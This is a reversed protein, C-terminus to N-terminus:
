WCSLNAWLFTYVSTHRFEPQPFNERCCYKDASKTSFHTHQTVLVFCSSLSKSSSLVSLNYEFRVDNFVVTISWSWNRSCTIHTECLKCSIVDHVISFFVNFSNICLWFHKCIVYNFYLMTIAIRTIWWIQRFSIM